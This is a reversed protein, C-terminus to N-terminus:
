RASEVKEERGLKKRNFRIQTIRWLVQDICTYSIPHSEIRIKVVVNM